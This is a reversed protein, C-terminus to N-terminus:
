SSGGCIKEESFSLSETCGVKATPAAMEEDPRRGCLTNFELDDAGTVAAHRQLPRAAPVMSGNDVVNFRSDQVPEPQVTLFFAGVGCGPVLWFAYVSWRLYDVERRKGPVIPVPGAELKLIVNKILKM